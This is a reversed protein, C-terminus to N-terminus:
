LVNVRLGIICDITRIVIQSTFVDVELHGLHCHRGVIEMQQSSLHESVVPLGQDKSCRLNAELM